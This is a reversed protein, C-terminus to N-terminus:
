SPVRAGELLARIELELTHLEDEDWYPARRPFIIRGQGDVLINSPTSLVAYAQRAWEWNGKLPTFGYAHSKMFPVVLSGEAPELNISVVMFGRPGYKDLLGQLRPM